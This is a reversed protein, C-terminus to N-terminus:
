PCRVIDRDGDGSERSMHDCVWVYCSATLKSMTEIRPRVVGRSITRSAARYAIRDGFLATANVLELYSPAAKALLAM